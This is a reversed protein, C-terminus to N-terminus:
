ASGGVWSLTLVVWVGGEGSVGREVYWPLDDVHHAVVWVPEARLVM